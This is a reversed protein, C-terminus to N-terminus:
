EGAAPTSTEQPTSNQDEGIMIVIETEKSSSNQTIGVTGSSKGKSVTQTTTGGVTYTATQTWGNTKLTTTYYSSVTDWSDATTLTVWFGNSKGQQAGTLVGTVKAGPYIPFDKPFTDPIKGSGVDVKTGTKEDTFTMKGNEADQLNTKVGTKQEIVNQLLGVGVKKAFFKMVVTSGIGLLILLVLCGIGVFVLPNTGKKSSKVDEPKTDIIDAM